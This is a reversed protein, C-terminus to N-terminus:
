AECFARVPQFAEAFGDLAFRARLSGEPHGIAEVANTEALIGLLEHELLKEILAGDWEATGSGQPWILTQVIEIRRALRWDETEHPQSDWFLNVTTWDDEPSHIDPWVIAAWYANPADVYARCGVRIEAAGGTYDVKTGTGTGDTDDLGFGSEYAVSRVFLTTHREGEVEILDWVGSTPPSLTPLVSATPTAAPSWSPRSHRASGTTLRTMGSGDANMVFLDDGSQFVIRKGNPSWSPYFDNRASNDTLQTVGSGDVNMVYINWNGNRNSSFAIREGDPSWSTILDDHPNDTLRTVGSGDVNMVYIDYTGSEDSEFAIREGDPSWSPSWDIAPNDTLRTVGSGDVNMVYTEWNGDRESEFAIRGGVPSWRPSSDHAPNDTLRTVGSGDAKMVYIDYNGDRDSHFAIRGGDPSWSPNDDLGPNDTLRTVGSGDANMVYIDNNSREDRDSGFAIRGAGAGPAYTTTPTPTPTPTPTVTLGSGFIDPACGYMTRLFAFGEEALEEEAGAVALVLSDTIGQVAERMCELAADDLDEMAVPVGANGIVAAILLDPICKYVRGVFTAAEASSPGEALMEMLAAADLPEVLGELCRREEPTVEVGFAGPQIDHLLGAIFVTDALDPPLCRIIVLHGETTETFQSDLTEDLEEGVGERICAQEAAGLVDFLERWRGHDVAFVAEVDAATVTRTPAPTSTPEPARTATPAATPEPTPTAEAAPVQAPAAMSVAEAQPTPTHTPAPSAEDGCAALLPIILLALLGLLRRPMQRPRSGPMAQPMRFGM